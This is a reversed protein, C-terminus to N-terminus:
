YVRVDSSTKVSLCIMLKYKYGLHLLRCNFWKCSWYILMRSSCDPFMSLWLYGLRVKEMGGKPKHVLM